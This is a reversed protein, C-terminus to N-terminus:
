GLGELLRAYAAVMDEQRYRQRARALNDRGIARRRDGDGALDALGAAFAGEDTKPVVFPRNAEAVMNRVDGVDTAAVPLGAAMAQVVTNPMQETDSSLAYIDFLGFLKEPQSQYGAFHVRGDLALDRALAELGPREAGDGVIILRAPVQEALRAFGRVLRGLNKERRLPAVTGIVVEGDTREFGPVLSPDPPQGFLALDVGNPILHILRDPVRWHRRAIDVLTSSPVVLANIHGLSLRRAWVRRPLQGDAEEPGFGSELHIHPCVPRLRNAMAWEISGWNYTMLAYPAHSALARRNALVRRPLSGAASPGGCAVDLSPDIREAAGHRGDLSVIHHRYATGLGNVINAIRIPVGGPAFTPFVHLLLPPEAM